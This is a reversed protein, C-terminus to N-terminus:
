KFNIKLKTEKIEEFPIAIDELVYDKRSGKKKKLVELVLDTEFKKLIGTKRKGDNTKVSVEKGINKIYQQKVKLPNTLGPSCVTLEYDEIDKDFKENIYKSIVLCDDVLVGNNKDFFITIVNNTSINVDVVFGNIELAKESAYKKIEEKLLM